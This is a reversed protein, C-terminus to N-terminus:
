FAAPYCSARFAGAGRRVYGQALLIDVQDSFENSTKAQIEEGDWRACVNRATLVGVVAQVYADENLVRPWGNNTDRLDFLEPRTRMVEDIAAEVEVLLHPRDPGCAMERSPPLTCGPTQAPHGVPRPFVAPRCTSRYANEGRRIHGTSLEIDYQDNFDNTNKIAVEEGDFVACFGMDELNRVVGLYFRGYSVIRFGGAGRQDNLDFIDPSRAVLLSIAQDLPDLFSPSEASCSEPVNEPVFGLNCSTGYAPTPTPTPPPTPSTPVPSASPNGSSSAPNGGGGGCAVVIGVVVAVILAVLSAPGLAAPAGTSAKM